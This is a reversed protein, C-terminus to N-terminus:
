NNGGKGKRQSTSDGEHDCSLSRVDPIPAPPKFHTMYFDM